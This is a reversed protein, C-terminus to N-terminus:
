WECGVWVNSVWGFGSFPRGNVGLGFRIWGDLVM